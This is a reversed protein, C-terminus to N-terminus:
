WNINNKILYNQADKDGLSAAIKLDRIAQGHNGLRYYHVFGRISYAGAFKPNLIIARDFDDIARMYNGLAVYEVGRSCYVESFKPNFDIARDYDRIAQKHNGLFGYALGRGYYAEAFKPNLKIAQDFDEIAQMYNGLLSYINGRSDYLWYVEAFNPRLAIARDFDDIAQRYQALMSYACGRGYYVEAFNPSLEAAKSFADIANGYDGSFFYVYGKELWEIATLSKITEYYDAKEKERKEGTSTALEKRLRENERLLEESRRRVAELEKTKARDQRLTDVAKIIEGSDAAIKAKLWYTRGDWKEDVIETKVIGATLTTIQDKTLQFNQVETVSELYTGLEELLLRKVERMAITRSSNRSDDESAQYTYEKIFTKMEAFAPSFSTFLFMAIILPIMKKMIQEMLCLGGSEEPPVPNLYDTWLMRM